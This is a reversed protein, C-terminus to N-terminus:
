RRVVVSFPGCSDPRYSLNQCVRFKAGSLKLKMNKSTGSFNGRSRTDGTLRMSSTDPFFDRVGVYQVYVPKGNKSFLTISYRFQKDSVWRVHAIASGESSSFRVTGVKLLPASVANPKAAKGPPNQSAVIFPLQSTKDFSNHASNSHLNVNKVVPITEARLHTTFSAFVTAATLSVVGLTPIINMLNEM